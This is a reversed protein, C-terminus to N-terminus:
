ALAEILTVSKTLFGISVVDDLTEEPVEGSKQVGKM